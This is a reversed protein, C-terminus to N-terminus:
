CPRCGVRFERFECLGLNEATEASEANITTAAVVAEACGYEARRLPSTTCSSSARLWVITEIRGPTPSM